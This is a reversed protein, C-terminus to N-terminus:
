VASATDWLGKMKVAGEEPRPTESIVTMTGTRAKLAEVMLLFDPSRSEMPLHRREGAATYEIGSFHCHIVHTPMAMYEDIVASFDRAARLAGGGRAHLHAMDLVPQVGEVQAMVEHIEHISGWAGKKGPTELGIAIGNGEADLQERCVAANRAIQETAQRPSRGGYTGAHVVLIWAGAADAARAARMLWDISKAEAEPTIAALNIYYPAHASLIIDLESAKARVARAVDDRQRVDRVFQLEMASLGLAAARAVADVADRSGEPRGALGFRAIM